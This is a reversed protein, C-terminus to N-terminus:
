TVPQADKPPGGGQYTVVASDREGTLEELRAEIRELAAKTEEDGERSEPSGRHILLSTLVVFTLLQLFESQWNELTSHWFDPWFESMSFSQGHERADNGVKVMQVFFQGVWSVLFLVALTLSLGYDGLPWRERPKANPDAM